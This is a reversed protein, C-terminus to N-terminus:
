EALFIVTSRPNMNYNISGNHLAVKRGSILETVWGSQQKFHFQRAGGDLTHVALLKGSGYTIDGDTPNAIVVGASEAIGRLLAAPLVPATSFVSTWSPNRKVALGARDPLMDLSGLAVGDTPTFVPGYSEGSGYSISYPLHKFIADSSPNLKVRLPLERSLVDMKIGTIESVRSSTLMDGDTIGPAYVFILTKGARKLRQEIVAQQERTIRFTNLFLYCKHEPIKAIDDLLYMDFGIGTRSLERYQNVVVDQHINSAMGTYYTSKEDVIVALSNSKDEAKRNTKAVLDDIQRLKGALQMLRKDGSTWGVSFDYIQESAANVLANAYNRIMGAKSEALNNFHGVWTSNHSRLDAQDVWVKGNLKVSGVPGMLGSGGGIQRDSYDSPSMLFDIDPSQLVKHVASHGILQYRYPGLVHTVYGYFVGVFKRGKTARKVVSAIHTIDDALQESYYQRYDVERRSKQPDLFGMFDTKIREEKTPIQIADFGGLATKWARNLSGINQYKSRLWDIFAQRASESYDVFVAPTAVSAWQQWEYTVGNSPLYGIVRDAYQSAEVHAVLQNVLSDAMALWSRSAMSPAHSPAGSYAPLDVSGTSDRVMQDPHSELWANLGPNCINDLPVIPVICANPDQTLVSAIVEDMKAFSFKGSPLWQTSLINLWYVHIGAASVNAIQGAANTDDIWYNMATRPKGAIVFRPSCNIMKLASLLNKVATTGPKVTLPLVAYGDKVKANRLGAISPTSNTLSIRLSYKGPIMMRPLVMSGIANYKSLGGLNTKLLSTTSAAGERVLDVYLISGVTFKREGSVTFRFNLKAGPQISSPCSIHSVTYAASQGLYVYPVQDTWTGTPPKAISIANVWNEAGNRRCQWSSDTKLFVVHGNRLHIGAELIMGAPGNHNIASVTLTNSGTKLYPKVDYIDAQRWINYYRGPTLKRGNVAITCENDATVIVKASAVQRADALDFSKEFLVPTTDEDKSNPIWIWEGSWSFAKGTSLSASVTSNIPDLLLRIDDFGVSGKGSPSVFSIELLGTAAMEPVILPKSLSSWQGAQVLALQWESRQKITNGLIDQYTIRCVTKDAKGASILKCKLSLLYNGTTDFALPQRLTVPNGSPCKIVASENQITISGAQVAPSVTWGDLKGLAYRSFDGNRVLNLKDAASLNNSRKFAIKSIEVDTNAVYIPDVRVEDIIGKWEANTSFDIDYTHYRGDGIVQIGVSKSDSLGEGAHKFYVSGTGSCNALMTVTMIQYLQTNIGLAPSHLFPFKTTTAKIAGGAVEIKMFGDATWGHMDADTDFTWSTPPTPADVSFAAAVPMLLVFISFLTKLANM